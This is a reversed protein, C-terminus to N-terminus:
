SPEACNSASTAFRRWRRSSGRRPHPHGQQSSIGRRRRALSAYDFITRGVKVPIAAVTAPPGALALSRHNLDPDFFEHLPVAPQGRASGADGALTPESGVGDTRLPRAPLRGDAAEPIATM